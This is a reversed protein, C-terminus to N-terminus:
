GRSKVAAETSIAMLAMSSAREPLRAGCGGEGPLDTSRKGGVMQVHSQFPRVFRIQHFRADNIPASSRRLHLGTKGCCACVEGCFLHMIIFLIVCLNGSIEVAEMM